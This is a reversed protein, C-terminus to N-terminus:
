LLSNRALNTAARSAETKSKSNRLEAYANWTELAHTVLTKMGRTPVWVEGVTTARTLRVTLANGSDFMLNGVLNRTGAVGDDSVHANWAAMSTARVVLQNLLMFKVSDLLDENPIHDERKYGGVSKAVNNIAVQIASLVEPIPKASGPLRPQAVVPLCHALKGM